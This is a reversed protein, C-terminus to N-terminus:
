CTRTSPSRPVPPSRACRAAAYPRPPRRPPSSGDVGRDHADPAATFTVHELVGSALLKDRRAPPTTPRWSSSCSAENPDDVLRFVRPGTSESRVGASDSDFMQRWADYDGVQVRTMVFAM